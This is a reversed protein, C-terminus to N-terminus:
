LYVCCTTNSGDNWVTRTYWAWEAEIVAKDIEGKGGGTALPFGSATVLTTACIGAVGTFGELTVDPDDAVGLAGRCGTM